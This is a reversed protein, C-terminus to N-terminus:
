KRGFVFFAGAALLLIMTMNAAKAGGAQPPTGGAPPVISQSWPPPFPLPIYPPSGPQAQQQKALKYQLVGGAMQTGMKALSGWFGTKPTAARQVKGPAKGLVSGIDGFLGM